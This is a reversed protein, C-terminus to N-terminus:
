PRSRSRGFMEKALAEVEKKELGHQEVLKLILEKQKDSCVWNDGAARPDLHDTM